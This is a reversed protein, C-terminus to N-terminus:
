MKKGINVLLITVKKRQSLDGVIMKHIESVFMKNLDSTKVNEEIFDMCKEINHIEKINESIEEEQNIKTEM